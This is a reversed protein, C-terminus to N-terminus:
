LIWLHCDRLTKVETIGREVSVAHSLRTTCLSISQQSGPISPFKNSLSKLSEKMISELHIELLKTCDERALSFIHEMADM